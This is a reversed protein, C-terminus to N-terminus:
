GVPAKLSRNNKRIHRAGAVAALGSALLLLTAPEPVPNPDTVIPPSLSTIEYIVSGNSTSLYGTASDAASIDLTTPLDSGSLLLNTPQDTDIIYLSQVVDNFISVGFLDYTPTDFVDFEVNGGTSIGTRYWTDGLLVDLGGPNSPGPQYHGLTSPDAVPTATDYYVLGHVPDGVSTGALTSSTVQADFQWSIAMADASEGVAVLFLSLLLALSLKQLNM